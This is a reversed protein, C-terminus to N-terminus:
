LWEIMHDYVYSVQMLREELPPDVMANLDIILSEDGEIFSEKLGKNSLGLEPLYAGPMRETTDTSISKASTSLLALSDVFLKTADYVRLIKEDAGIVIRHPTNKHLLSLATLEHGHIVPRAVEHYSGTVCSGKWPSYVRSTFDSSATIIYSGM